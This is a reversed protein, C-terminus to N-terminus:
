LWSLRNFEAGGRTAAGATDTGAKPLSSRRPNDDGIPLEVITGTGFVTAGTASSIDTPPTPLNYNDEEGGTEEVPDGITTEDEGAAKSTLTIQITNLNNKINKHRIGVKNGTGGGPQFFTSKVYVTNDDDDTVIEDDDDLKPVEIKNEIKIDISSDPIRQADLVGVVAVNDSTGTDTDVIIGDARANIGFPVHEALDSRTSATGTFLPFAQILIDALDNLSGYGRETDDNTSNDANLYTKANKQTASFPVNEKLEDNTDDEDDENVVQLIVEHSYVGTRSNGITLKISGIPNDNPTANSEDDQNGITDADFNGERDSYFTLWGRPHGGVEANIEVDNTDFFDKVEDDNIDNVWNKVSGGDTLNIPRNFSTFGTGGVGITLNSSADIATPSGSVLFVRKAAGASGKINATGKRFLILDEHNDEETELEVAEATKSQGKFAETGDFSIVARKTDAHKLVDVLDSLGTEDVIKGARDVSKNSKLIEQTIEKAILNNKNDNPNEASDNYAGYGAKGIVFGDGEFWKEGTGLTQKGPVKFADFSVTELDHNGKVYLGKLKNVKDAALSEIDTNHEIVLIGNAGSEHGLVLDGEIGTGRLVVQSTISRATIIEEFDDLGDVTVSFGGHIHARELDPTSDANLTVVTGGKNAAAPNGGIQLTELDDADTFTLTNIHAGEDTGVNVSVVDENIQLNAGKVKPATVSRVDKVHLLALTTLEPLSVEDPGIITLNKDKDKKGDAKLSYVGALSSLDIVAANGGLDISLDAEYSALASLTLETGEDLEITHDPADEEEEEESEKGSDFITKTLKPLKVTLIKDSGLVVQSATALEPYHAHPQSDNLNTVSSLNAFKLVNDKDTHTITLDGYILTIKGVWDILESVEADSLNSTNITINGSVQTKDALSIKTAAWGGSSTITVDGSHFGGDGLEDTLEKQLAALKEEFDTQLKALDAQSLAGSSAATLADELKKLEAQIGALATSLAAAQATELQEKLKEIDAQSLSNAAAQNLATELKKIEGNLATQAATLAATVDTSVGEVRTSISAVQANLATQAQTLATGLSTSVGAVATDIDGKVSTQIGAITTQLATVTSSLGQLTNVQGQLATIQSNLDDFRDDYNKCGAAVLAVVTFLIFIRKM